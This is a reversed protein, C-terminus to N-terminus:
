GRTPDKDGTGKGPPYWSYEAAPNLSRAVQSLKQATVPSIRTKTASLVLGLEQYSTIVCDRPLGNVSISGSGVFALVPFVQIDTGIAASLVKSVQRAERRAQSVYSPRKGKIQVVDDAVWVRNRGHQAVSVSFVGGPGIALFGAMSPKNPDSQPLVREVVHWDNSLRHAARNEAAAIRRQRAWELPSAAKAPAPLPLRRTSPYSYVTM